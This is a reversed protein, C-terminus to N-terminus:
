SAAGEYDEIGPLEVLAVSKDGARAQTIAAQALMRFNNLSYTAGSVADVREPSQRNLLANCYERIYQNPYVGQIDYMEKMFHEDWSRLLGSANRADYDITVISDGSVYITMFAKWGYSDYDAAEATYYGPQMELESGACGPFVMVLAAMALVAAGQWVRRMM